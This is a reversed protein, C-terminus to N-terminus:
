TDRTSESSTFYAFLAHVRASKALRAGPSSQSEKRLPADSSACGENMTQCGPASVPM